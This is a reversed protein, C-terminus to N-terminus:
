DPQDLRGVSLVAVEVPEAKGKLEASELRLGDTSRGAAMLSALSVVIEGTRARSAFRAATNVADGLATLDADDASSGVAGVYAVGAHVGIGVPLWPGGRDRHGTVVLLDEEAKLAHRAHDQGSFGPLFLAVVEDGVFKDITADQTVLVRMAEHYFRGLLGGFASASMGEAITTSGRIDAFLMSLEIEAGGLGRDVMGGLCRGCFHPNKEWRKFGMLSGVILRGPGAFPAHYNKCRPGSPIHGFIKRLRKWSPPTGVLAERWAEELTAPNPM